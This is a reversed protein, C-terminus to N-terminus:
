GHAATGWGGQTQTRFQCNVPEGSCDITFYETVECAFGDFISISHQGNGLGTIQQGGLAESGDWHFESGEPKKYDTIMAWGTGDEACGYTLTFDLDCLTLQSAAPLAGALISAGALLLHSYRSTYHANM